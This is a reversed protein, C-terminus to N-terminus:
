GCGCARINIASRRRTGGGLGDGRRTGTGRSRRCARRRWKGRAVTSLVGRPCRPMAARSISWSSSVCGQRRELVAVPLLWPPQLLGHRRPRRLLRPSTQPDHDDRCAGAQDETSIEEGGRRGVNTKLSKPLIFCPYLNLSFPFYPSSCPPLPLPRQSKLSIYLSSLFSTKELFKEHKCHM